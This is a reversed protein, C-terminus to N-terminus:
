RLLGDLHVVVVVAIHSATGRVKAEKRVSTPDVGLLLRLSGDAITNLPASLVVTIHCLAVFEESILLLSEFVELINMDERMMASTGFTQCLKRGYFLQFHVSSAYMCNVITGKRVAFAALIETPLEKGADVIRFRMKFFAM